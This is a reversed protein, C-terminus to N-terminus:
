TFFFPLFFMWQNDSQTFIPASNQLAPHPAPFAMCKLSNLFYFDIPSLFNFGERGNMLSLPCACLAARFFFPKECPSAAALFHGLLRRRQTVVREYKSLFQM